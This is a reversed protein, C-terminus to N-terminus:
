HIALTWKVEKYFCNLPNEVDLKIILRIGVNLITISIITGDNVVLVTMSGIRQDLKGMEWQALCGHLPLVINTKM